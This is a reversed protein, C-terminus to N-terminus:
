RIETKAGSYGFWWLLTGHSPIDLWGDKPFCEDFSPEAAGRIAKIYWGFRRHRKASQMKIPVDIEDSIRKNWRFQGVAEIFGDEYTLLLGTCPRHPRWRDQCVRVRVLNQLPATTLYIHMRYRQPYDYPRYYRSDREPSGHESRETHNEPDNRKNRHSPSKTLSM